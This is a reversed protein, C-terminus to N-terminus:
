AGALLGLLALQLLVAAVLMSWLLREPGQLGPQRAPALRFELTVSGLVIRDGSRLVADRVAKSDVSVAGEGMATLHLRGDESCAIRAHSEWVGPESLCLGSSPSRGISLPPRASVSEGKRNGSLLRLEIM